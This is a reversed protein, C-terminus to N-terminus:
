QPPAKPAEAPNPPAQPAASDAPATEAVNIIHIQVQQPEDSQVDTQITLTTQQRGGTGTSVNEMKPTIEISFGPEKSLPEQKVEILKDDYTLKKIEFPKNRNSVVLVKGTRTPQQASMKGVLVMLPKVSVEGEIFGSVRIMIESKEPVDTFCKVFGNYTGQKLLNAIILRYHKGEEVTEIKYRIKDELNSEVKQITFRQSTAILDIAKEELQDAMGRFAINTSPQVEIQPKVNGQLVLMARQNQPDNSFM